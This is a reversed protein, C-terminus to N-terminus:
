NLGCMGSACSPYSSVGCMGSECGPTSTSSNSMVSNFTSFKKQYKKSHCSPCEIMDIKERTRHLIEYDVNCDNCRYEFLPM